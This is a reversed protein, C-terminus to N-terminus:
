AAVMACAFALPLLLNSRMHQKEGIAGIRVAHRTRVPPHVHFWRGGHAAGCAAAADHAEAMAPVLWEHPMSVPVGECRLIAARSRRPRDGFPVKCTGQM